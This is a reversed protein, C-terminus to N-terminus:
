DMQTRRFETLRLHSRQQQKGKDFVRVFMPEVPIFITRMNQLDSHIRDTRRERHIDPIGQWLSPARGGSMVPRTQPQSVQLSSKLEIVARSTGQVHLCGCLTKFCFQLQRIIGSLIRQTMTSSSGSAMSTSLVYKPRR